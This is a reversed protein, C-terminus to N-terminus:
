QKACPGRQNWHPTSHEPLDHLPPPAIKNVTFSRLYFRTVVVLVFHGAASVEAMCLFLLHRYNSLRLCLCPRLRLVLKDFFFGIILTSSFDLLHGRGARFRDINKICKWRPHATCPTCHSAPNLHRGVVVRASQTLLFSSGGALHCPDYHGTNGLGGLRCPCYLVTHTRGPCSRVNPCHDDIRTLNM